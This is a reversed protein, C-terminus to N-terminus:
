KNELGQQFKLQKTTEDAKQLTEALKFYRKSQELDQKVGEGKKYMLSVNACAFINGNECGKKAFGFAQKPDPKILYDLNKNKEPNHPNYETPNKPVGTLYMGALYHCAM